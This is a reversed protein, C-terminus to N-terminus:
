SKRLRQLFDALLQQFRQPQDLFVAHGADAVTELSAGAITRAMERQEQLDGADAAAIVLTPRNFKALAPRRDVTIFDALLM